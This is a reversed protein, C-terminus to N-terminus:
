CVDIPEVQVQVSDDTTDISLLRDNRGFGM